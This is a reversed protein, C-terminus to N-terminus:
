GDVWKKLVALEEPTVESGKHLPVYKPLPMAGKEIEEVLESSKSIQQVDSYSGWISFNLERRGHEVDDAVLWSVPAVYAYWPWLTENSHCDYCSTRLIAEVEPPGDFDSAVPPNTREVPVFQIGVFALALVVLARKLFKKKPGQKTANM